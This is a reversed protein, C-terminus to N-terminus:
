RDWNRTADPTNTAIGVLYFALLLTIEILPIGIVWWSRRQWFRLLGATLGLWIATVVWYIAIAVWPGDTAEASGTLVAAIRVNVWFIFVGVILYFVSTALAAAHYLVATLRGFRPVGDWIALGGAVALWAAGFGALWFRDDEISDGAFPAVVGLCVFLAATMLLPSTWSLTRVQATTAEM